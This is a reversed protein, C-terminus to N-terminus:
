PAPAGDEASGVLGHELAFLVAGTRNTVGAKLYIHELHNRVTKTSLFLRRAIEASTLGHALLGVVEVERATLGAPGPVRRGPPHGAAGLVAEVATADLRGADAEARLRTVAQEATLAPRHPRHERSGCYSDAAALIRQSM